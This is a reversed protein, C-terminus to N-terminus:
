EKAAKSLQEFIPVMQFGFEQRFLSSDLLRPNGSAHAEGLQVRINSNLSEVEDKLDTVVVSECAANYASHAPCAAGLLAVLMKAVDDVHVLLIRESGVYPLTIEAAHRTPLLEVIQSRWASSASQAGGGVVRGIRLSVFELGYSQRYAEGIQEVYLKAAGYLDEPAARDAESVVQDAAYTGYVSLSSGFVFRRVDFRRAMELLHLSGDVNVRTARVPERQAATPLIAALHIIGGIQEIEFVRQLQRADALDCEVERRSAPSSTPPRADLSVVGYGLRQLLKVVARGIFGRGGTVLVPNTRGYSELPPILETM